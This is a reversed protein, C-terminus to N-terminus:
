YSIEHEISRRIEKMSDTQELYYGKKINENPYCIESWDMIRLGNVGDEQSQANWQNNFVYKTDLVINKDKLAFIMEFYNKQVNNNPIYGIKSLAVGSYDLEKIEKRYAEAQQPDSIDFRYASLKTTILSEDHADFAEKNDFKFLSGDINAGYDTKFDKGDIDAPHHILFKSNMPIIKSYVMGKLMNEGGSYAKAQGLSVCYMPNGDSDQSLPVKHAKKGIVERLAEVVLLPSGKRDRFGTLGTVSIEDIRGEEDRQVTNEVDLILYRKGNILM